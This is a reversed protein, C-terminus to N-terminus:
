GLVFMSTREAAALFYKFDDPLGNEASYTEIIPFYKNARKIM